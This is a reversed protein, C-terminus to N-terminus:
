ILIVDDALFDADTVGAIRVYREPGFELLLDGRLYRAGDLLADVTVNGLGLADRDLWLVDRNDTFDTIIMRGGQFVFEDAGVGGTVSDKGANVYLRDDGNLGVLLDNGLGGNLNDAGAGGQLVDDGADGKLVDDGSGGELLDNGGRGELRDNGTGGNLTNRRDSGYLWDAGSGSALNEIGSISDGAAGGNNRGSNALDVRAAGGFYATDVGTGGILQDRGPGGNLWDNGDGGHLRDNGTGGALRDDGGLGDIRDDGAQGFLQNDAGQGKIRDNGTSGDVDEIITEREIQINGRLGFASSIAGPTLDVDVAQDSGSFNLKDNGSTDMITLAFPTTLSGNAILRGIRGHIGTANTDWFYTTDGLGAGPPLDYKDQIGAIDGPMPTLVYAFSADIATNEDQPFYSMVSMQWSDNDYHNDVGYEADGNYKGAHGLGLAHGIEHLWTQYTFGGFRSGYAATFDPGVHVTPYYRGIWGDYNYRDWTTYAGNADDRLVIDAHDTTFSFDLGLSSWASVAVRVLAVNAADLTSVDVTITSGLNVPRQGGRWYGRSLFDGVEDVSYTSM